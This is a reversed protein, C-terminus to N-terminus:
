QLNYLYDSIQKLEKKSTTNYSPMFADPNPKLHDVLHQEIQKATKRSGIKDLTPALSGGEGALNHCAKCGLANILGLAEPSEQQEAFASLPILIFLLFISLKKILM